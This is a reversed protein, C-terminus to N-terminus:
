EAQEGTANTGKTGNERFNKLNKKRTKKKLTTESRNKKQLDRYLLQLGGPHIFSHPETHTNHQHRTAIRRETKNQSFNIKKERPKV